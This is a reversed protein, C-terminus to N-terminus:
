RVRRPRKALLDRCVLLIGVPGMFVGITILVLGQILRPTVEPEKGGHPPPAVFVSLLLAAVAWSGVTAILCVFLYV